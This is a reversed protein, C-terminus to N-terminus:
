DKDWDLSISSRIIGKIRDDRLAHDRDVNYLFVYRMIRNDDNFFIGCYNDEYIDKEIMVTTILFSGHYNSLDSTDPMNTNEWLEKKYCSYAESNYKIDLVCITHTASKLTIANDKDRYKFSISENGELNVFAEFFIQAEKGGNYQVYNNNLFDDKSDTRKYTSNKINVYIFPSLLFLTIIIFSLLFLFLTRKEIRKVDLNM